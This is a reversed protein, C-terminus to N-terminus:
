LIPTKRTIEQRWTTRVGYRCKAQGPLQFGVGYEGLQGCPFHGRKKAIASNTADFQEPSPHLYKVGELAALWRNSRFCNGATPGRGPQELHEGDGWKRAQQGIGPVRGEPKTEGGCHKTESPGWFLSGSFLVLCKKFSGQPQIRGSGEPFPPQRPPAPSEM